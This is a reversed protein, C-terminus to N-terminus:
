GFLPHLLVLPYKPPTPPPRSGLVPRAPVNWVNEGEPREPREAAVVTGAGAWSGESVPQQQQPRHVSTIPKEEPRNIPTGATGPRNVPRENSWESGSWSGSGAGSPREVEKLPYVNYPYQSDVNGPPWYNCVIYTEPYNRTNDRVQACGMHHSGRWVVQSFGGTKDSFGPRNYDYHNRGKYWLDVADQCSHYGASDYYWYFNEGYIMKNDVPRSGDIKALSRIRAIAHETVKPVFIKFKEFNKDFNFDIVSKNLKLHHTNEHLDRCKNHAQLCDKLFEDDAIVKIGCETM